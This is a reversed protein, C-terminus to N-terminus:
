NVATQTNQKVQAQDNNECYYYYLYTGVWDDALATRLKHNYEDRIKLKEAESKGESVRKREDLIPKAETIFATFTPAQMSVINGFEVDVSPDKTSM